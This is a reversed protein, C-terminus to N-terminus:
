SRSSARRSRKGKRSRGKGKRARQRAKKRQEKSGWPELFSRVLSELSRRKERREEAVALPARSFFSVVKPLGIRINTAWGSSGVKKGQRETERAEKPRQLPYIRAATEYNKLCRPRNALETSIIFIPSAGEAESPTISLSLPPYSAPLM